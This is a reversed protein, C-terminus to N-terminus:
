KIKATLILSIEKKNPVCYSYVKRLSYLTAKHARGGPADLSRMGWSCHAHKHWLTHTKWLGGRPGDDARRRSRLISSTDDPTQTECSWRSLIIHKGGASPHLAWREGDSSEESRPPTHWCLACLVASNWWFFFGLGQNKMKLIGSSVM